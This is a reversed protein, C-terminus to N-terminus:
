REVNCQNMTTSPGTGPRDEGDHVPPRADTSAERLATVQVRGPPPFTSRSSAFLGLVARSVM